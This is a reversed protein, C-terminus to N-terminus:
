LGLINSTIESATMGYRINFNKEIHKGTLDQMKKSTIWVSCKHLRNQNNGQIIKGQYYGTLAWQEGQKQLDYVFVFSGPHHLVEAM